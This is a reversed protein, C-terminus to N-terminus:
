RDDVYRLCSGVRAALLHTASGVAATLGLRVAQHRLQSRIHRLINHQPPMSIGISSLLPKRQVAAQNDAFMSLVAAWLAQQQASRGDQIQVDAYSRTRLLTAPKWLRFHRM